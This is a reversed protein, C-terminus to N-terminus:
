DFCAPVWKDVKAKQAATLGIAEQYDADHFVKHLADVKDGKKSKVFAQNDDTYFDLELLDQYVEDLQEGKMRKFCNIDTPTWINRIHADIDAAIKDMFATSQGKFARALYATIQGNRVKKGAERFLDFADEQAGQAMAEFVADAQETAEDVAGGLRADLVFGDDIQPKNSDKAGYGFGFLSETSYAAPSTAFGFLELLYEPKKLLATQVSALRISTMDDIFKQSFAPKTAKIADATTHKSAEILGAEIAEPQDQKRVLGATVSLTGDGAVHVHIGSLHKQAPTYEGELIAEFAALEAQGAADLADGNTLDTLEDNRESQEESLVGEEKYVRAFGYTEQLSYWYAYSDESTMVWAWGESARLAEAADELKEAFLRELIDPNDLLIEDEFLDATVQGGADKYAELGVFLAERSDGNVADPKLMNRVTYENIYGSQARELVELIKAEDTSVTMAKAIAQTIDGAKVAELVPEPLSALALRRRVHSESVGFAKTIRLIDSGAEAMKRYARIEDVADLDERATNEANAWEQAVLPDKTTLVPVDALEPRQQVAIRLARLRRGGAVIGIKGKEDELGGLNQLLGCTVLSEALLAIGTEDADQRPNIDSLYLDGLSVIIATREFTTHKTM